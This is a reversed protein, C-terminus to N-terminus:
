PSGYINGEPDILFSDGGYQTVEWWGPDLGENTASCGAECSISGGDFSCTGGANLDCNTGAPFGWGDGSGGPVVPVVPTVVAEAPLSSFVLASGLALLSFIGKM